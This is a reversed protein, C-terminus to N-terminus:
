DGPLIRRNDNRSLTTEAQREESDESVRVLGDAPIRVGQNPAKTRRAVAPRWRVAADRDAM